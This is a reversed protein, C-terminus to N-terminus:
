EEKNIASNEWIRVSFWLCSWLITIVPISSPFLWFFFGEKLLAKLKWGGSLLCIGGVCRTCVDSQSSPNSFFCLLTLLSVSYPRPCVIRYIHISIRESSVVNSYVGWYISPAECTTSTIFFRATLAPVCLLRPNLGQTPFIWQLFVHCDVGTNKGPSDWQCLLRVPLLGNPRLSDSM